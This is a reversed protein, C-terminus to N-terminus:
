SDREQITDGGHDNRRSQDLCPWQLDRDSLIAEATDVPWAIGLALDNWRIGDEHAASYPRNVKYLVETGPELTCYGHAFGEPIFLHMWPEARLVVAVHQGFSPSGPRIDVAVDFVAGRLVRVLKAQAYPPRQFHLGRVTGPKVSLSQNDQVFDAVLGAEVFRQRNFIESFTGRKDAFQRPTVLKVDPIALPLVDM